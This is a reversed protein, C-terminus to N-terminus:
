LGGGIERYVERKHVFRRCICKQSKVSLLFAHTLFKLEGSALGDIICM